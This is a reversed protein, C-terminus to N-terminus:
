EKGENKGLLNLQYQKKDLKQWSDKSVVAIFINQM